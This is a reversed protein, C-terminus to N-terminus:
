FFETISFYFVFILITKPMNGIYIGLNIFARECMHIPKYLLVTTYMWMYTFALCICQIKMEEIHLVQLYKSNAIKRKPIQCM